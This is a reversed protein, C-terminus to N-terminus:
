KNLQMVSEVTVKIETAIKAQVIRPVKINYDSLKVFFEGSIKLADQDINLHVPITVIKTVGHITFKGKCIADTDCGNDCNENTIISGVFTAKPYDKTDLYHENFHEKQLPSNFGQFSIMDISFAFNMNSADVIGVLEKSKAKITELPAESIFSVTGNGRYLSQSYANISSYLLFFIFFNRIM